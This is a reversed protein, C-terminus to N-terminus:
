VESAERHEKLWRSFGKPTEGYPAGQDLYAQADERMIRAAARALTWLLEDVSRTLSLYLRFLTGATTAGESRHAYFPLPHSIFM